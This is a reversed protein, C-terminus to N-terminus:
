LKEIADDLSKSAREIRQLTKILKTKDFHHKNGRSIFAKTSPDHRSHALINRDDQANKIDANITGLESLGVNEIIKTLAQKKGELSIATGELILDFHDLKTGSVQFYKTFFKNVKTELEITESIVIGRLFVVDDWKQLNKDIMKKLTPVVKRDKIIEVSLYKGLKTVDDNDISVGSYYLVDTLFNKERVQKVVEEGTKGKGLNKDALIIDVDHTNLYEDVKEGKKSKLLQLTFGKKALYDDIEDMDKEMNEHHDDVLIITFNKDTM